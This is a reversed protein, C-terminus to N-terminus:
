SIARQSISGAPNAGTTPVWNVKRPWGIGDTPKEPSITQSTSSTTSPSCSAILQASARESL